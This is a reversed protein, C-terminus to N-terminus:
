FATSVSDAGAAREESVQAGPLRLLPCLAVHVTESFLVEAPPTVIPKLSSLAVSAVGPLTFTALPALLAVKETVTPLMGEACVAVTVALRLPTVREVWIPSAAGAGLTILEKPHEGADRLAAPLVVQVTFRVAAAAVFATTVMESLLAL